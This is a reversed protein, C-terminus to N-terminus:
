RLKLTALSLLALIAAIIWFRIIVKSESIGKMQFHHHLPAILFVRKGTLRFSAVQVIVSIAEVVFIGGVLILLLEKKILIAVTGLAGGLALSGTDGMFLQAPHSNFWLFGLGAGVISACFVALEGSGPIYVIKLYDSFRAHGSVYSFGSYALGAMIICGIALGDLGDTLNVANSTGVIVLFVFIFFAWISFHFRVGKLFPFDIGNPIAPDFFVVYAILLSPILEGFVKIRKRLGKASHRKLKLYDDIFGILCFWLLSFIALQVFFSKIDAWLLTSFFVAFVILTGGMTPTGKKSQHFTDLGPCEDKPRVNQGIKFEKLKRIVWPGAFLSLLFSFIVACGARFTLYKFVNFGFFIERLPYLLYYLM